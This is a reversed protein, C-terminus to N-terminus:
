LDGSALRRTPCAQPGSRRGRVHHDLFHRFLDELVRLSRRHPEEVAPNYYLNKYLFQRLELNLERRRHRYHIINVPALAPEM